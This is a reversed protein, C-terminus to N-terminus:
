RVQARLNNANSGKAQKTAQVPQDMQSLTGAADEEIFQQIEEETMSSDILGKKVMFNQMIALTHGISSPPMQKLVFSSNAM